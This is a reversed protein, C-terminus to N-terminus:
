LASGRLISSAGTRRGPLFCVRILPRTAALQRTLREALCLVLHKADLDDGLQATLVVEDCGPSSIAEEWGLGAPQRCTWTPEGSCTREAELEATAASSAQAAVGPGSWAVVVHLPKTRGQARRFGSWRPPAVSRSRAIQSSHSVDAGYFGASVAKNSAVDVIISGRAREDLCRGLRAEM